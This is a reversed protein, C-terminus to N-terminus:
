LVGYEAQAHLYLGDLQADTLATSMLIRALSYKSFAVTPLKGLVVRGTLTFVNGAAVISQAGDVRLTLKAGDWRVAVFHWTGAAAAIRTTKQAGDYIGAGIGSTSYSIVVNGGRDILFSPDVFVGGGAPAAAAPFKVVMVITGSSATAFTSLPQGPATELAQGIASDFYVPVHGNVAVGATPAADGDADFGLSHTASTGTSATAAWPIVSAFDKCYMSLALTAPDVATPYQVVGYNKVADLYLGDMIADPLAVKSALIRGIRGYVSTSASFNVGFRLSKALALVDLSAAAVGAWAGGNVRIKLTTGDYVVQICARTNIALPVYPTSVYGAAATYHSASVGLQSIAIVVYGTNDSFLAGEGSHGSAANPTGQYTSELIFEFTYASVTAINGILSTSGMYQM